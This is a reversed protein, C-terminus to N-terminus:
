ICRMYSPSGLGDRLSLFPIAISSRSRIDLSLATGKKMKRKMKRWGNKKLTMAHGLDKRGGKRRPSPPVLCLDEGSQKRRSVGNRKSPFQSERFGLNL